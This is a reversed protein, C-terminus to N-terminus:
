NNQAGNDIWDRVINTSASGLIGAPPMAGCSSGIMRLYLVSTASSGAVIRTGTTCSSAVGVTATRSNGSTLNPSTGGTFHCGTCSPTWIPQVDNSLTYIGSDAFTLSTVGATSALLTNSHAGKTIGGTSGMIWSPLTAVGSANTVQPSAGITGGGVVSGFAISAGSKLNGFADKVLVSPPSAVGATIRAVRNNTTGNVVMTAAAAANVTVNQTQVITSFNATASVAHTGILTANFTSIVQGNGDTTGGTPNFTNVTGTASISVLSGPRVNSFADRVTVTVTVATGAGTTCSTSCATMSSPSVGVTSTTLDVGAPNVTVGATQTVGAVSVTKAEAKTSNLTTTLVGSSNTSGSAPSFTNGTVPGGAFTVGAGSVANGFQDVETVTVTSATSGVVCSSACATISATGAVLTSKSASVAGATGTASFSLTTPTLSVGPTATLTNAGALSDLVWSGVAAIGNAATTASAGTASGHTAPVSFTIGVGPVGNSARDTVKVSPATAVASNVTASQLDGGNKALTVPNGAAVTENFNVPTLAGSTAQVTVGGTTTGLTVTDAAIGSADTLSTAPSRTASGATVTWSVTVGSVPNGGGDTVLVKLAQLTAGITDTQADGASKTLSSPAGAQATALFSATLGGGTAVLTDTKAAAGLQWSTVTAVGSGDTLQLGGTVSGSAGSAPAFTVGFGSVPNGFADTVAVSPPSSVNTGVTATNITGGTAAMNAGPGATGTATFTVPNGGGSLGSATATLTNTGATTGLKWSALSAVGFADTAVPNTGTISGGGGTVAFTITVGAIANDYADSVVASPPATV